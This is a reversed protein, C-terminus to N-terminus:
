HGKLIGVRMYLLILGVQQPDRHTVRQSIFDKTPQLYDFIDIGIM